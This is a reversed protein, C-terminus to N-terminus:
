TLLLGTFLRKHIYFCKWFSFEVADKFTPQRQNAMDSAVTDEESVTRSSQVINRGKEKKKSVYNQYAQTGGQSHRQAKIRNNARGPCAQAAAVVPKTTLTKESVGRQSTQTCQRKTLVAASNGMKHHGNSM